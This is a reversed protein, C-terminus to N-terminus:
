THSAPSIDQAEFFKFLCFFHHPFLRSLSQPSDPILMSRRLVHCLSAFAPSLCFMVPKGGFQLDLRDGGPVLLSHPNHRQVTGSTTIPHLLPDEASSRIFIWLRYSRGHQWCDESAPTSHEFDRIHLVPRQHNLWQM